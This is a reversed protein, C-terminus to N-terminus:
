LPIALGITALLMALINNYARAMPSLVDVLKANNTDQWGLLDPQGLRLWELFFELAFLTTALSIFALLGLRFRRESDMSVVASSAQNPLETERRSGWRSAARPSPKRFCPTTKRASTRM